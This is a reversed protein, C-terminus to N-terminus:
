THAAAARPRSKANSRNGKAKSHKSHKSHKSRKGRQKQKLRAPNSARTSSNRSAKRQARIVAKTRKVLDYLM